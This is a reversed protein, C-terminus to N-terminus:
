KKENKRNHRCSMIIGEKSDDDNDAYLLYAHPAIVVKNHADETPSAATRPSFIDESPPAPPFRPTGKKQRGGLPEEKSPDEKTFATKDGLVLRRQDPTLAGCVDRVERRVAALNDVNKRLIDELQQDLNDKKEILPSRQEEQLDALSAEVEALKERLDNNEDRAREAAERAELRLAALERTLQANQAYMKENELRLHTEEEKPATDAAPLPARQLSEVLLILKRIIDYPDSADVRPTVKHHKDPGAKSEKDEEKIFNENKSSSGCDGRLRDVFSPGNAKADDDDKKQEEVVANESLIHNALYTITTADDNLKDSDFLRAQGKPLSDWQFKNDDDDDDVKPADDDCKEREVVTTLSRRLKAPATTPRTTTTKALFFDHALERDLPLLVDGDLSELRVLARVVRHKYGDCRASPNGDLDLHRLKGCRRLDNLTGELDTLKNQFLCLTQLSGLGGFVETHTLCNNSFYAQRLNRCAKLEDVKTLENFNVNVAELSVLHDFGALSRLSNHSLSLDRLNMLGEAVSAKICSIGYERVVLQMVCELEVEGSVELVLEEDLERGSRMMPSMM